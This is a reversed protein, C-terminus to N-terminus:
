TKKKLVLDADENTGLLYTALGKEAAENHNEIIKLNNAFIECRKKDEESNRVYSKRYENKFSEWKELIEPSYCFAGYFCILYSLIFAVELVNVLNM